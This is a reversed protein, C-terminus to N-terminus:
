EQHSIECLMVAYILFSFRKALSGSLGGDEKDGCLCVTVSFRVSVSPCVCMCVPDDM